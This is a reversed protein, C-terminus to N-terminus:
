RANKVIRNYLDKPKFPKLVYDNIALDEIKDHAESMVAATLAVIPIQSIKKDASSRIIRTAEIGDMVPMHLDMLILDFDQKKIEELALAGNEVHTVKVGWSELFKNAVFFNIKNDEAVLIKKGVLANMSDSATGSEATRPEEAPMSYEISFTFVSGNDPESTVGITGGQLDVLRKCIALGLGTGGYKRTTDSSAQAYSEFIEDQKERPIGIGTDAVSFEIVARGEQREKLSAKLTVGGHSTFKMANSLLNSLIQNLRIPDGILTVPLDPSKELAFYIGKELARHSYSRKMDELMSTLDFETKEFVIKGAEMKNYDLIDNVLTLLHNASFRLTNIYDMQDERPDSQWLLNTIGIVENLPTRIEHSMTSMFQQKSFAAEEARKRATILNDLMKRRQLTLAIQNAIFEFVQLDENNFADIKKYDQLCIAGIVEDDMRLPVGMWIKCPSGVLSIAGTKEIMLIDNEDLLVAKNNNIVWGTLTNKAATEQFHDREDAFFPFTLTDKERNYLAIFFNNVNWLKGIEKVITPYIDFIDSDQLALTSINYQIEQMLRSKIEKSIDRYIGLFAITMDNSIVSSAILSVNIRNGQKDRRITELYGTGTDLATEDIKIAEDRLEEPVVLDDILRNKAEDADYGFLRTFGHNIRLIRGDFDTLVIAEPAADILHELLAKENSLKQEYEKRKSVDTLVCRYGTVRNRIIIPGAHFLVTVRRKLKNVLVYEDFTIQGPSTLGSLESMLRELDEPMFLSSLTIGNALDNNDFGLTMMGRTNMFTVHGEVDIEMIMEPLLEAFTEFVIGQKLIESEREKQAKGAEWTVLIDGSSLLLGIYFGSDDSGDPSVPTKYPRHSSELNELLSLFTENRAFPTEGIEKGLVDKRDIQEVDEARYNFDIIFHKDDGERRLIIAYSSMSDFIERLIKESEARAFGDNLVSIDNYYTILFIEDGMFITRASFLFTREDGSRMRLKIELDSVQKLRSILRMYKRSQILDVYLQIDDSTKGIIEERRYGTTDLFAQNVEIYKQTELNSLTILQNTSNFALESIEALNRLSTLYEESHEPENVPEKRKEM